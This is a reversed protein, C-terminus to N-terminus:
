ILGQFEAGKTSMVFLSLYFPNESTENIPLKQWTSGQILVAISIDAGRGLTGKSAHACNSATLVEWTLCPDFNGRISHTLCYNGIHM